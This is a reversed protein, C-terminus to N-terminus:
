AERGPPPSREDPEDHDRQNSDRDRGGYDGPQLAGWRGLGEVITNLSDTPILGNRTIIGDKM